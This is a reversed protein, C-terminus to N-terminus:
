GDGSRAFSEPAPRSFRSVAHAIWIGVACLVYALPYAIMPADARGLSILGIMIAAFLTLAGAELLVYRALRARAFAAYMATAVTARFIDGTMYGLIFPTAPLFSRALFLRVLLHSAVAFVLLFGLMIGSATLWSERLARERKEGEAAAYRPIFLQVLYLAMLQTTTDSVRSAAMWYSLQEAGFADRYLYRLAFPIAANLVALIAFAASYGLLLRVEGLVHDLAGRPVHHRRVMWGAMLLTVLPGASFAVVASAADHHILGIMAGATSVALGLAQAMLSAAMRGFGTLMSCFIQGPGSLLTTLTVAPVVWWLGPEGALFQAIPHALLISPIGLILVAGAWIALGANRIRAHDGAASTAAFQRILGNQAGGIALMNLLAAFLLFQSFVSFSAVPLFAASLKLLLLGALVKIGFYAPLALLSWRKM